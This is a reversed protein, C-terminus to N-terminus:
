AHSMRTNVPYEVSNVPYAPSEVSRINVDIITSIRMSLGMLNVVTLDIEM